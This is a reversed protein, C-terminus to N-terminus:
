GGQEQRKAWEHKAWEWFDAPVDKTGELKNAKQRNRAIDEFVTGSIDDVARQFLEAKEAQSLKIGGPGAWEKARLRTEYLRRGGLKKRAEFREWLREFTDAM